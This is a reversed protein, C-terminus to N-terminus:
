IVEPYTEGWFVLTDCEWLIEHNKPKKELHLITVLDFHQLNQEEVVKVSEDMANKRAFVQEREREKTAKGRVRDANAEGTRAM